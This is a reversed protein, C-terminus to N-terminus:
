MELEQDAVIADPELWGLDPFATETQGRHTLSGLDDSALQHDIRSRM